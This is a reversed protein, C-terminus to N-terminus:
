RLATADFVDGSILVGNTWLYRNPQGADILFEKLYAQFTVHDVDGAPIPADGTVASLDCVNVCVTVQYPNGLHLGHPGVLSQDVVDQEDAPAVAEESEAM